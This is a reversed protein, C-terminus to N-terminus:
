KARKTKVVKSEKVIKEKATKKEQVFRIYRVVDERSYREPPSSGGHPLYGSVKDLTLDGINIRIAIILLEINYKELYPIVYLKKKITAIEKTELKDLLGDAYEIAQEKTIAGYKIAFSFEKGKKMSIRERERFSIEEGEM